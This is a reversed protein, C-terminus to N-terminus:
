HAALATQSVVDPVQTTVQEPQVIEPTQKALPADCGPLGHMTQSGCRDLEPKEAAVPLLQPAPGLAQECCSM